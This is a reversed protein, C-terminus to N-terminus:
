NDSPPPPPPILEPRIVGAADPMGIHYGPALSLSWGPGYLGGISPSAATLRTFDTAILAGETARFEGWQDRLTLVQYVTGLSDVPTVQTPDFEFQM